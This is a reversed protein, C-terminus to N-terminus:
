NNTSHSENSAKRDMIWERLFHEAQDYANSPITKKKPWPFRRSKRAEPKRDQEMGQKAAPAGTGNNETTASNVDIKEASNFGHSVWFLDSAEKGKEFLNIGADMMKRYSQGNAFESIFVEVMLNKRQEFLQDIAELRADAENRRSCASVLQQRAAEIRIELEALGRKARKQIRAIKRRQRRATRKRRRKQAGYAVRMSSLSFARQFYYLGFNLNIASSLAFVLGILVIAIMTEYPYVVFLSEIVGETGKMQTEAEHMLFARRLYSAFGVAALALTSILLIIHRFRRVGKTDNRMWPKIILHRFAIEMPLALLGLGIAFTWGHWADPGRTALGFVPGVTVFSLAIEGIMCVLAAAMFLLSYFGSVVVGSSDKKKLEDISSKLEANPEEASISEGAILAKAPDVKATATDIKELENEIKSKEVELRTLEARAANEQDRAKESALTHDFQAKTKEFEVQAEIAHMLDPKDSLIGAIFGRQDSSIKVDAMVVNGNEDQGTKSERIYQTRVKQENNM